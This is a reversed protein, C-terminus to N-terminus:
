GHSHRRIFGAGNGASVMYTYSTDYELNADFHGPTSPTAIVQGNRYLTYYDAGDTADWLIDVNITEVVESNYIM